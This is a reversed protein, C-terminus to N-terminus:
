RLNEMARDGALGKELWGFTREIGGVFCKKKIRYKYSSRTTKAVSRYSSERSIKKKLTSHPNNCLYSSSQIGKIESRQSPDDFAGM